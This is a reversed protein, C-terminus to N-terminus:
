RWDDQTVPAKVPRCEACTTDADTAYAPAVTSVTDHINGPTSLSCRYRFTKNTM